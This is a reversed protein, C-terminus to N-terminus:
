TIEEISPMSWEERQEHAEIWKCLQEWDVGPGARCLREHKLCYASGALAPRGCFLHRAGPLERCLAVQLERHGSVPYRCQNDTLETLRRM